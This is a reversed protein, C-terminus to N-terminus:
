DRPSSPRALAVRALWSQQTATGPDLKALLALRTELRTLSEGGRTVSEIASGSLVPVGAPHKGEAFLLVRDDLVLRDFLRPDVVTTAITTVVDLVDKARARAEDAVEFADEPFVFKAEKLRADAVATSVVITTYWNSDGFLPEDAVRELGAAFKEDPTMGDFVGGFVGELM